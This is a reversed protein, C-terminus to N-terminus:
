IKKEKIDSMNAFCIAFLRFYIQTVVPTELRVM